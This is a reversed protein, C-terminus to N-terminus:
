TGLRQMHSLSNDPIALSSPGSSGWICGVNPGMPNNMCFISFFSNVKTLFIMHDRSSTHSLQTYVKGNNGKDNVHM